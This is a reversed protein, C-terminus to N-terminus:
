PKGNRKLYWKGWWCFLLMSSSLLIILWNFGIFQAFIGAFLLIPIGGTNYMMFQLSFVRGRVAEPAREQMMTQTPINVCAMAVGLILVLVITTLLLFLSGAGQGHYLYSALVQTAPLLLFGVALVIFGATTLRLRDVRHAIRPMVISACVLGVAAPALIISMDAAPRHLVQQVFTGALEGILLMINGVVSLQVVSFFLM